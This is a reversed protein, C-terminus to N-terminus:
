NAQNIPNLNIIGYFISFGDIPPDPPTISTNKILIASTYPQLTISGDYVASQLDIYKYPLSVVKATNTENYEFRLDNIDAIAMPSKSSNADKGFLGKWGSLNYLTYSYSPTRVEVAITLNDDVPRAYYNNDMVVSSAMTATRLFISLVLQSATKSVLKNNTITLNSFLEGSEETMQLQAYSNNFVKNNQITSSTVGHLYMGMNCGSVSNDHINVGNAFDDMYIGIGAPSNLVINNKIERGTFAVQGGNYTYIGGGDSLLKCFNSVMNSDVISNNGRFEIGIYGVSDVVNNRFLSNDGRTKIASYGGGLNSKEGSGFIAGINKISTNRVTVSDADGSVDIGSNNAQDLTCNTILLGTAAGGYDNHIATLGHYKVDCSNLTIYKSRLFEIGIKNSGQFSINDFTIYSFNNIYVLTDITSIQVNTPSSASYVRLKKTSPNYYWENQTDLTRVDNQIIFNQNDANIDDLTSSTYTLTNGSQSTIPSRGLTYFNVLMALEAGTWNPTGTLDSSTISLSNGFGTGSHSQYTYYSGVNPTRGMPTNVCNIAVMNTYPLTSVASISEWINSGLNSWSSINTFGTIIPKAGTGYAGFIIPNGSAGSQTVILSGYFTDGRKFLINDGPAFTSMKSNVKAITQWATAQSTGNAADSGTASVYYVISVSYANYCFLVCLITLVRRM